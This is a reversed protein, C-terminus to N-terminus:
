HVTKISAPHANCHFAHALMSGKNLSKSLVATDLRARDLIVRKGAVQQLLLLQAPLGLLHLAKASFQVWAATMGVNLDFVLQCQHMGLVCM